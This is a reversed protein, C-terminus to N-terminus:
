GLKKTGSPHYVSRRSDEVAPLGDLPEGLSNFVRGLAKEGVPVTVTKGTRYVEQGVSLTKSGLMNVCVANSGGRFFSVELFIEPHDVVSLLEKVQPKEGSVSVEVMLGRMGRITGVPQESM